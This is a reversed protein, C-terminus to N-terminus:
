RRPVTHLRLEGGEKDLVEVYRCAEQVLAERARELLRPLAPKAKARAWHMQPLHPAADMAPRHKGDESNLEKDTLLKDKAMDMMAGPLGDELVVDVQAAWAAAVNPDAPPGVQEPPESPDLRCYQEWGCRKAFALRTKFPLVQLGHCIPMNPLAEYRGANRAQAVSLLIPWLADPVEVHPPGANRPHACYANVGPIHHQSAYGFAFGIGPVERAPEHSLSYIMFGKGAVHTDVLIKRIPAGGYQDPFVGQVPPPPRLHRLAEPLIQAAVAAAPPPGPPAVPGAAPDAAPVMVGLARANAGDAM